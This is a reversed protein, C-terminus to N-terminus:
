TRTCAEVIVAAAVAGEPWYTTCEGWGQRGDADTIRVLCVARHRGHDNPEPYSVPFADVATIAAM